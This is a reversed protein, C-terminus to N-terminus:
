RSLAPLTADASAIMSTAVGVSMTVAGTAPMTGAYTPVDSATEHVPLKGGLAVTSTSSLRSPPPENSVSAAAAGFVPLKAHVTVPGSVIAASTRRVAVPGAVAVPALAANPM